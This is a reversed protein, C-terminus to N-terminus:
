FFNSLVFNRFLLCIKHEDFEIINFVKQVTDFGFVLIDHIFNPPQFGVRHPIFKEDVALYVYYGNEIEATYLIRNVM